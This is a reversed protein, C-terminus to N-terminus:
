CILNMNFCVDFGSTFKGYQSLAFYKNTVLDLYVNTYHQNVRGIYAPVGDSDYSAVIANAPLESNPDYPVWIYASILYNIFLSNM